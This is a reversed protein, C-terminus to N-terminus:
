LTLHALELPQEALLPQFGLDELLREFVATAALPRNAIFTIPTERELRISRM